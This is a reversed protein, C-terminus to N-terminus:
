ATVLKPRDAAAPPPTGGAPASVAKVTDATQVLSTTVYTAGAKRFKVLLQDFSRSKGFYAVVITLNPFRDRLRKVLYLAQPVGGPPVVSVVAAAARNDQIAQEVEVPLQRATLGVLRRGAKPLGAALMDLTLEEARHHAPAGVVVPLARIDAQKADYATKEDATYPERLAVSQAVVEDTLDFIGAEEEASIVDADRDKRALALAPVAVRDFAALVANAATEEAAPAALTGAELKDKALLRQYFAVHPQLAPEDGLLLALPKLKPVHQGIVALCVTIPTSLLLGIPGWVWGWFAAAILLAIPSVGTQHGFLLPEIVQGTILDLVAFYGFVALPQAWGDATAFSIAFPFLASVWTGIYPIFRLLTSLFGWLPAYKVGIFYLGVTLCLGFGANVILQFLLFKSVREAADSLVRTTGTVKGRGFLGIVRNRLDERNVLMFVVLIGVLGVNALPEVVPLVSEALAGIGTKEAQEVVVKTRQGFVGSPRRTIQQDAPVAANGQPAPEPTATGPKINDAAEKAAEDGKALEDVMKLLESIPGGSGRLEDLKRKINDKKQPLEKALATVQGGLVYGLGAMVSATLALTVLVAPTRPLGTREVLRVLPSLIFVFLVALAVPIIVAAGVKLTFVVLVVTGLTQLLGLNLRPRPAVADAPM